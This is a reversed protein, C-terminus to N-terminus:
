RTKGQIMSQPIRRAEMQKASADTILRLPESLPGLLAAAQKGIKDSTLLVFSRHSQRIVARQLEVVEPASNWVGNQNLGEAGLIAVDFKWKGISHIAEAGLLLSQRPILSGGLVHLSVSTSALYDVVPLSNTVVKLGPIDAEPLLRALAYPTTGGDIYVTFGSLLYPLAQRALEQKAPAQVRLREHFTPFRATFRALAGGKWNVSIGARPPRVSRSNRASAIWPWIVAM